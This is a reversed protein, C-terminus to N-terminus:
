RDGYVWRYAMTFGLVRKVYRRTETYGIDESFDDFPPPASWAELWRRVATEGGNYSAIVAPLSTDQLVGALSQGKMGLEATGLSANYPASYLDTEDFPREYLTAHIRRAEKPMLQMLGAAGAISTVTPDLASEATMIGYPVLLDFDNAAAVRDVIGAEPRPTCAQQAVPDGGKWPSVCYPGALKRARRYDGVALFAHAAALSAGRGSVSAAIPALEDRAEARLGAALLTESRRVEPRAALAAPWPPAAALESAPFSRGLKTAAFWAYGSVPWRTIVAALADDDQSSRALWYAAGPALSSSGHQKVLTEWSRRAEEARGLRWQARARFWLAEDAHRSSPYRRLHADLRAVAEELDGADYSMYGPKYSALDGRAHDPHQTRLRGYIVAATDYDGTRATALAYHFLAEASGAAEAAEGLAGRFAAVAGPYDRARFTAFARTKPGYSGPAVVEVAGMLARAEPYQHAEGLAKIRARAAELTAADTLDTVPAGHQALLVAAREDAGGGVDKSWASRLVGLAPQLRGAAIAAEALALRAEGSRSSGILANLEPRAAAYQGSAAMARARYLRLDQGAAGPLSRGALLAAAASAEGLELLAAARWHVAYDGLVGERVPELLAAAEEPHGTRLACRGVVLRAAPSAPEPLAARVAPCDGVAVADAIEPSLALAVGALLLHVM